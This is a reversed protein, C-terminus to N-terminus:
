ITMIRKPKQKIRCLVLGIILALPLALPNVFASEAISSFLLYILAGLGAVYLARNTKYAPSVLKFLCIIITVYFIFGIIGTQGIIMPWFTDTVLIPRDKGLGWVENIGYKIYVPSYYKGSPDSAFTGFGTGLPFYDRAIKLSTHFLAGRAHLMTNESFFYGYFENWGVATAVPLFPLLKWGKLEKKRLVVLFFVYCFTFTAAIAKLRLSLLVLLTGVAVFILDNSKEKYFVALMLMLFFSVSALGTPHGFFLMESPLGFRADGYPFIHFGLNSVALVLLAALIFKIHTKIREQYRCLNVKNFIYYTSVIGLFFKTNLLIDTAVGIFGQYEYIVNSILGTVLFLLVLVTIKIGVATKIKTGIRKYLFLPIAIVAYFEDWYGFVPIYKMLWYEFVFLYVVCILLNYYWKSHRRTKSMMNLGQFRFVETM